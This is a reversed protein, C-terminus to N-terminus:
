VPTTHGRFGCPRPSCRSSISGSSKGPRAHAYVSTTKLDAHGLTTSVLAIPAGNYCAGGLAHPFQSRASHGSWDQAVFILTALGLSIPQRGSCISLAPSGIGANRVRHAHQPLGVVSVPAPAEFGPALFRGGHGGREERGATRAGVEAPVLEIGVCAIHTLPF